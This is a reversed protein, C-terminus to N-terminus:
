LKVPPRAVPCAFANVGERPPSLARSMGAPRIAPTVRAEGGLLRDVEQGGRTVRRFEVLPGGGEHIPDLETARLHSTRFLARDAALGPRSGRRRAPSGGSRFVGRDSEAVAM